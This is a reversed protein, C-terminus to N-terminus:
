FIQFKGSGPLEEILEAGFLAAPTYSGGNVKMDLLRSVVALSGFVTLSYVNATQIRVTRTEGDANRAEGWIYAPSNRRAQEDPGHVSRDAWKHMIQQIMSTALIPRFWKLSRAGAIKYSPMPIWTNINPIGTTHFATSVDGWPIAMATKTGRGFDITRKTKGLQVETIIGGRRESSSGGLGQIMTKFTGPSIGSDSDFGLSLHTANPLLEKLKLAVCDTPIVDFGVGPCLVVGADAARRAQKTGHAHEFVSIEGTIDLYHSGVALCGEIMPASTASFPGACHLVVDIERLGSLVQNPDDLSFVRAELGLEKALTHIEVKRRGALIPNLRQAVATRAILQGTYGNAGYIMWKQTM